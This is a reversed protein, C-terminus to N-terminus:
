SQARQRLEAAVSRMVIDTHTGRQRTPGSYVYRDIFELAEARTLNPFADRKPMIPDPYKRWHEAERDLRDALDALRAKTARWEQVERALAYLQPDTYDYGFEPNLYEAVLEDSLCDLTM